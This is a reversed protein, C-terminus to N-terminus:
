LVASLSKKLPGLFADFNRWQDMGSTYIPQRVQESSPTRVARKNKHFDICAQEFDLGCYDLIRHVQTELDAIVDEHQVRLIKGPLVEDWHQMVDVYDCYYDGITELSYSFEQGEAFLQKYGSFCCAMPERRADIIKANPLMLQLMAIHRFNNPMKDIFFKAGRRHGQTDKIYQKGLNSFGEEPLDMLVSPYRPVDSSVQRANFRHAMSIINALELTGDVQSHSALIQELLTSGARPLGVIFIPDAANHGYSQRQKFFETDFNQRQFDLGEKILAADFKLEQTKLKNGRQYYKFSSEYDQRDEYAKGLAFRIQVRDLDSIKGSAEHELMADIEADAFDYTKLNALSWYADGFGPQAQHAAKYALIAEDVQGSTKLAHGLALHVSANDPHKAVVNRYAQTAGQYDGVSQQANGLSIEFSPNPDIKFLIEAQELAEHYKQRRHLVEVYDLRAQLYDPKFELCKELLFEADDLIKFKSGLQALLRMAEPHHPDRKLFQRCLVEAKHLKNQHILSSVSVLEPPLSRLWALQREAKDARPYNPMQALANWVGHMSPNLQVAKEFADIASQDRGLAQYNYGFEQLAHTHEPELSQLKQLTILAAKSDDLKRQCVAYCYIADRHEPSDSLLGTLCSLASSFEGHQIQKKAQVLLAEQETTTDITM